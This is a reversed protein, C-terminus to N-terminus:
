PVPWENLHQLIRELARHKDSIEVLEDRAVARSPPERCLVDEDKIILTATDPSARVKGGTPNRLSLLVTEDGESVADSLVTIRITKSLENQGFVM